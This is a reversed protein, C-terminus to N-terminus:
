NFETVRTSSIEYLELRKLVIKFFLFLSISEFEVTSVHIEGHAMTLVLQLHSFYFYIVLVNYIKFLM